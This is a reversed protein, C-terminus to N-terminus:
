VAFGMAQLTEKVARLITSSCCTAESFPSPAQFSALADQSLSDLLGLSIHLKQSLSKISRTLL